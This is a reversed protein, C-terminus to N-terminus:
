KTPEDESERKEMAEGLVWFGEAGFISAIALLTSMMFPTGPAATQFFAFGELAWCAVLAFGLILIEGNGYGKIQTERKMTELSKFDEAMDEFSRVTAAIDKDRSKANQYQKKRTKLSVRRLALAEIGNIVITIVLAWYFREDAWIGLDARTFTVPKQINAGVLNAGDTLLSVSGKFAGDLPLVRSIKAGDNIGPKPIFKVSDKGSLLQYTNEVSLFCLAVAMTKMAYQAGGKSTPDTLWKFTNSCWNVPKFLLHGVAKGKSKKKPKLGKDGGLDEYDITKMPKPDFDDLFDIKSM